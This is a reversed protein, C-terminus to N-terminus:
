QISIKEEYTQTPTNVRVFYMGPAVNLQLNQILTNALPAAYVQQGPLNYIEVYADHVEGAFSLTFKGSSPNPYIVMGSASNGANYIGTTNGQTYLSDIEDSCLVENNIRLDDVYGTHLLTQTPGKGMLAFTRQGIPAGAPITGILSADVYLKCMSDDNITAVIFHWASDNIMKTSLFVNDSGPTHLQGWIGIAGYSSYICFASDEFGSLDSGFITPCDWYTGNGGAETTNIWLSITGHVFNAFPGPPILGIQDQNQISVAGATDGFRDAVYTPATPFSINYANGSVDNGNSNFPYHAVLSDNAYMRQLECDTLVSDYIKVDDVLGTQSQSRGPGKGMIGYITQSFPTGAPFSGIQQGDVYLKCLSDDNIKAVIFHWRGDNIIVASQFSQANSQGLGDLQGWFGVAGTQTVISFATDTYGSIDSGFLTPNAWYPGSGSADTTQIWLSITGQNFNHFVAAPILAVDSDTQVSLARNPNGFRDTGFTPSPNLSATFGNGSSDAGNGNFMYYAKLGYQAQATFLGVFMVVLFSLFRLPNINKM